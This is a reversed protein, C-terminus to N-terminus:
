AARGCRRYHATKCERDCFRQGERKPSFDGRCFRCSRDPYTMTRAAEGREDTGITVATEAFRWWKDGRQGFATREGAALVNVTFSEAWGYAATAAAIVEVVSMPAPILAALSSIRPPWAPSSIPATM